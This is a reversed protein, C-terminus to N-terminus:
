GTDMQALPIESGCIPEPRPNDPYAIAEVVGIRFGTSVAEITRQILSSKGAGPAAMLNVGLIGAAELRARNDEAFHRETRNERILARQDELMEDDEVATRQAVSM